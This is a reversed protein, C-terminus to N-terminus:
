DFSSTLCLEYDLALEEALWARILNFRDLCSWRRPYWNQAVLERVELVSFAISVLITCTKLQILPYFISRDGRENHTNM